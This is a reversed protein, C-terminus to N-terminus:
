ELLWRVSDAELAAHKLRGQQWWRQWDGDSSAITTDYGVLVSYTM